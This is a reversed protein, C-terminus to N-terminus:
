RSSITPCSPPLSVAPHLQNWSTKRVFILCPTGLHLHKQRVPKSCGGSCSFIRRFYWTSNNLCNFTSTKSGYKFWCPNNVLSSCSSRILGRCVEAVLTLLSSTQSGRLPDLNKYLNTSHRWCDASSHGGWLSSPLRRCLVIELVTWLCFLLPWYICQLCYQRVGWCHM